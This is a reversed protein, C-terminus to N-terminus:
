APATSPLIASSTSTMRKMWFRGRPRNASFPLATSAHDCLPKELGRVAAAPYEEGNQRDRRDAHGAEIEEERGGRQEVHRGRQDRQPALVEAIGQEGQREIEDPAIAADERQAVAGEEREAAVG